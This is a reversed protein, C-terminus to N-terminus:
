VRPLRATARSFASALDLVVPARTQLTIVTREQEDSIKRELPQGDVAVGGAGFYAM